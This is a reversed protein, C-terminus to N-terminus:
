ENNTKLIENLVDQAQGSSQKSDLNLYLKQNKDSFGELLSEDIVLEKGSKTKFFLNAGEQKDFFIELNNIIM